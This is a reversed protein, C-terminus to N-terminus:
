LLDLVGKGLLPDFLTPPAGLWSADAALKSNWPLREKDCIQGLAVAAFARTTESASGDKVLAVLPEIARADGVFGLASATAVAEIMTNSLRLRDILYPVISKDGLLALAISAERLLGPRYRTKEVIVERLIPASAQSRLLGLAIAAYGRLNEDGNQTHGEITPISTTDRLLALALCYAGAEQPGDRNALVFRLAEVVQKTPEANGSELLALALASWPREADAGGSLRELLLARAESQASGPAGKGHRGAVRGLALLAQNRAGRDGHTATSTLAARVARDSEDEDDDGLLSLGQIVGQVVLPATKTHAGIATVFVGIAQAVEAGEIGHCLRGIAVPLQARETDHTERADFRQLLVSREAAFSELPRHSGTVAIGRRL